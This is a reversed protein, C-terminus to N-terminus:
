QILWTQNKKTSKKKITEKQLLFELKATPNKAKLILTKNKFDIIELNNKEEKNAAKEWM